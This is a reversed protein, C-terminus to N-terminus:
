ITSVNEVRSVSLMYHELNKEIGIFKRGLNLAAVGTSGSGMAFDLVVEGAITYTKILHELLPVPKQTPHDVSEASQPHVVDFELYDLASKVKRPTTDTTDSYNQYTSRRVATVSSRHAYSHDSFPIRDFRCQSNYFVSISEMSKMPQRKANLHNTYRNKHWYWDYKYDALNSLRLHSSFPETGFICIAGSPKILRQLHDWLPEFPIIIDWRCGTSGYPPDALVMDVSGDAIDGMVELCDGNHLEL